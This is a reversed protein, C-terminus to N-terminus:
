RSPGEGRGTRSMVSLKTQMLDILESLSIRITTSSYVLLSYDSPRDPLARRGVYNRPAEVTPLLPDNQYQDRTPTAARHNRPDSTPVQTSIGPPATDSSDAEPLSLPRRQYAGPRAVGDSPVLDPNGVAADDPVVLQPLSRTNYDSSAPAGSSSPKEVPRNYLPLSVQDQQGLLNYLGDAKSKGIRRAMESWIKSQEERYYRAADTIKVASSAPLSDGPRAALLAEYERELATEPDITPAAKIDNLRRLLPLAVAIDDASFRLALLRRLVLIQRTRDVMRRSLVGSRDYQVDLGRGYQNADLVSHYDNGPRSVLPAPAMQQAPDNPKVTPDQDSADTPPNSAPFTPDSNRFQAMASASLLSCAVAAMIIAYGGYQKMKM